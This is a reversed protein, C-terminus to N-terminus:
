TEPVIMCPINKHRFTSAHEVDVNEHFPVWLPELLSGWVWVFSSIINILCINKSLAFIFFPFVLFRLRDQFTRMFESRLAELTFFFLARVMYPLFLPPFLSTYEPNFFSFLKSSQIYLFYSNLEIRKKEESSFNDLM